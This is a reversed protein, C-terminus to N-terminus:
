STIFSIVTSQSVDNHHRSMSVSEMNSARQSPFGVTVLSNGECFDGKYCPEHPWCPAWRPSVPGLHAGHVKSDPCTVLLRATEKSTLRFLSKVWRGRSLIAAMECVVNEIANEQVFIYSNRNLNSLVLQCYDLMPELLPKAGFLRCAMVHVLTSGTWQRM